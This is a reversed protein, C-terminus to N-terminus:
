TALFLKFYIALTNRELHIRRLARPNQPLIKLLMRQPSSALFLVVVNENWEVFYITRYDAVGREIDHNKLVILITNYVNYINKEIEICIKKISQLLM